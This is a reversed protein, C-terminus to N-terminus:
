LVVNKGYEAISPARADVDREVGNLTIGGTDVLSVDLYEHNHTPPIVNNRESPDLLFMRSVEEELEGTWWQTVGFADEMDVQTVGLGGCYISRQVLYAYPSCIHYLCMWHSRFHSAAVTLISVPQIAPLVSIEAM